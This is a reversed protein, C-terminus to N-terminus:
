DNGKRRLLEMCAKYGEYYSSEAAGKKSMKNISRVNTKAYVFAKDEVMKETIAINNITTM